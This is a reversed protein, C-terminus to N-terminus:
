PRRRFDNKHHKLYALDEELSVVQAGQYTRGDNDTHQIRSLVKKTIAKSTKLAAEIAGVVSIEDNQLIKRLIRCPKLLYHFVTFGFIM